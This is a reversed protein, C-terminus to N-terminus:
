FSRIMHNNPPLYFHSPGSFPKQFYSPWSALMSITKGVFDYCNTMSPRFFTVLESNKFPCTLKLFPFAIFERCRQKLKIQILSCRHGMQVPTNVRLPAKVQQNVLHKKKIHKRQLHVFSIQFFHFFLIFFHVYNNGVLSIMAMCKQRANVVLLLLPGSKILQDATSAKM